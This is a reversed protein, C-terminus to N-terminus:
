FNWTRIARWAVVLLMVVCGVVILGIEAVSLHWGLALAAVAPGFFIIFLALAVAIQAGRHKDEKQPVGDVTIGGFKKKAM